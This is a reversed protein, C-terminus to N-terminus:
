SAGEFLESQRAIVKIRLGKQRGRTVHIAELEGRKVRQLVTQRSVGLARILGLQQANNLRVKFNTDGGFGRRFRITLAAEAISALTIIASKLVMEKATLTIDTRNTLWWLVDLYMFAYACSSAREHELYDPCLARYEDATKM